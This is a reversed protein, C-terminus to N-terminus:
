VVVAVDAAAGLAATYFTPMAIDAAALTSFVVPVLTGAVTANASLTINTGSVNIVTTGAPIGSGVALQGDIIGVASAVTIVDSGLTVTATTM